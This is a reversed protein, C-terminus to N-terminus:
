EYWSKEKINYKKRMARQWMDKKVMATRRVKVPVKEVKEMLGFFRKYALDMYKNAQKFKATNSERRLKATKIYAQTNRMYVFLERTKVLWQKNLGTDAILWRYKIWINLISAFSAYRISRLPKDNITSEKIEKNCKKLFDLILNEEIRQEINPINVKRATTKEPSQAYIMGIFMLTLLILFIKKM